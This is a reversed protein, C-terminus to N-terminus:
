TFDDSYTPPGLNGVFNITFLQSAIFSTLKNTVNGTVEIIFRGKSTSPIVLIKGGAQDV